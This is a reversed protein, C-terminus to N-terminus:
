RRGSNSRLRPPESRASAPMEVDLDLERLLRAFGIRCDKEIAVAPHARVNGRDDHVVIGDHALVERAQVARDWAEAALTLLRFHHPELAYDRSVSSWWKQTEPALHAPARPKKLSM